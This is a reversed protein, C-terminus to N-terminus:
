EETRPTDPDDPDLWRLADAVVATTGTVLVTGDRALERGRRLAGEWSPEAVVGAPAAETVSALEWRREPDASPPVTCVVAELADALLQLMRVWPKDRLVSVVAARPRPAGDTELVALVARLAEVNHAVDLVWIGDDRRLAQLRGPDPRASAVGREAEAASLRPGAAELLLLAVAANEAQHRGAAPLRLDLGDPRGRSVYRFRTGATPLLASEVEEVRADRGLRLFPAGVERAREGLVAAAEPPTRGVVAPRGTKWIGAKERAVEALTDRQLSAHDLGVTVVAAGRADVVNTADLRGGLGVEVFAAETGAEALALLGVATIAEFRSAGVRDAPSSVRRACAELLEPDAPRRGPPVRVRDAFRLTHPSLYAGARVGAAALLSSGVLCASGKGNTGGVHYVGYSEQPDGLAALVERTRDLGWEIGTTPRDRLLRAVAGDPPQGPVTSTSADPM